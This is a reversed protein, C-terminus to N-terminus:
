RKVVSRYNRRIFNYVGFRKFIALMYFKIKQLSIQFSNALGYKKLVANRESIQRKIYNPNTSIGSQDFVSVNLPLYKTKIKNEIITKVWFDFDAVIRYKTNYKGYKQFLQRKIFTAQHSITKNLFFSKNLIAKSFDVFEGNEYVVNGYYIDSSLNDKKIFDGANKLVRKDLFFDGGNLFLVYKGKALSIGKNMADYVGNDKESIFKKINKKYKKLVNLTGDTSKGDIVIWEFIKASQIKVSECTKKIKEEENHCVTIVSILPKEVM